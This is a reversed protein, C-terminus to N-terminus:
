LGCGEAAALAAGYGCACPADGFRGPCLESHTMQSVALRLAARLRDTTNCWHQFAKDTAALEAKLRENEARLTKIEEVLQETRM